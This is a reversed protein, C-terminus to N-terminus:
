TKKRKRCEKFLQLSSCAISLAKYNELCGRKKGAKRRGREQPLSKYDAQLAGGSKRGCQEGPRKFQESGIKSKVNIHRYRHTYLCSAPTSGRRGGHLDLFHAQDAM